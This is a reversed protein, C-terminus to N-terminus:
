YGPQANPITDRRYQEPMADYLDPIGGNALQCIYDPDYNFISAIEVYTKRKVRNLWLIHRGLCPLACLKEAEQYLDYNANIRDALEERLAEIKAVADGIKDGEACVAVSDRSYDVGMLGVAMDHVEAIKEEIERIEANIHRMHSLYANVCHRMVQLDHRM